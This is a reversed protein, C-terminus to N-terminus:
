GSGAGHREDVREDPVRVLRAPQRAEIQRRGVARGGLRRKPHHALGPELGADIRDAVDDAAAFPPLAARRRQDDARMEVADDVGPAEVAGEADDGADDRGLREGALAGQGKRDFDRREAVLLIDAERGVERGGVRKGAAVAGFPEVGAVAVANGQAIREQGEAALRVGDRREGAAALVDDAIELNV